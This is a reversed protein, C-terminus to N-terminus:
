HPLFVEGGVKGCGELGRVKRMIKRRVRQVSETTTHGMRGEKENQQTEGQLCSCFTNQREDRGREERGEGKRGEGGGKKGGRGREERGEGKRGEGGGKKGGRGREEREEGKRGEGGGKKGGRGREERGEGERREGGRGGRGEGGRGEGGRGEGGRGEGGRGEGGRGEGGRGERGEGREREERGGKKGKSRGEQETTHRRPPLFSTHLLLLPLHESCTFIIDFLYSLQLSNQLSLVNSHVSIFKDEKREGGDGEKRGKGEGGRGEEKGGGERRERRM